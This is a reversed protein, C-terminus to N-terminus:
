KTFDNRFSIAKEYLERNEKLSDALVMNCFATITIGQVRAMTKVYDYVEPSFALNIRPLQCGKHGATKLTQLFEDKEAQTYTKRDKRPETAAAAQEPMPEATAEAITSYVPATNIMTFDKKNAM